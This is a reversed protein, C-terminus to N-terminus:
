TATEYTLYATELEPLTECPWAWSVRAGRPVNGREDTEIEVGNARAVDLLLTPVYEPDVDHLFAIGADLLHFELTRRARVGDRADLADVTLGDLTLFDAPYRQRVAHIRQYRHLQRYMAAVLEDIFPNTFSEREISHFERHRDAFADPDDVVAEM